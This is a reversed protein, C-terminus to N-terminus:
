DKPQFEQKNKRNKESKLEYILIQPEFEYIEEQSIKIKTDNIFKYWIDGMYIYAIYKDINNYSICTKLTYEPNNLFNNVTYSCIIDTNNLSLDNPFKIDCKYSHYYRKFYIILAKSPYFFKKKEIAESNRCNKCIVKKDTFYKQLCSDLNNNILKISLDQLSSLDLTIINEGYFEVEFRCIKCITYKRIINFFIQYIENEKGELFSNYIKKYENNIVNDDLLETKYQLTKIINTHFKTEFLSQIFNILFYYPENPVNKEYSLNYNKEYLNNISGIIKQYNIRNNKCYNTLEEDFTKILPPEFNNEKNNNNKSNHWNRICDLSFISQFLYKKYYFEKKIKKQENPNNNNDYIENNKNINEKTEERIQKKKYEKLKCDILKIFSKLLYKIYNLDVINNFYNLFLCLKNDFEKFKEKFPKCKKFHEEFDNKNFSDNCCCKILKPM